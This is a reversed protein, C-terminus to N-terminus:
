GAPSRWTRFSGLNVVSVGGCDGEVVFGNAAPTAVPLAMARLHIQGCRCPYDFQIRWIGQTGERQYDGYVDSAHVRSYVSQEPAPKPVISKRAPETWIIEGESESM